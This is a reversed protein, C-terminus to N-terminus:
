KNKAVNSKIKLNVKSIIKQKKNKPSKHFKIKLLSLKSIM